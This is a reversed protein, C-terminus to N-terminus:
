TRGHRYISWLILIVGSVVLVDALNFIPLWKSLAVFDRVFGLNIRDILNGIGGSLSLILGAIMLPHRMNLQFLWWFLLLLFAVMLGVSLYYPLEIGFSIGHNSHQTIWTPWKIVGADSINQYPRWFYAKVIQDLWVLLGGGLILWLMKHAM